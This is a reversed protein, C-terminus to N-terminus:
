EGMHLVVGNGASVNHNKAWGANVELVYQVPARPSFTQPFSEPALNETIEAITGGSAIWIIDIPFQMDKMWFSPILPKEYVFLMGANEALSERHSLGREQAERTRAVELQLEFGQIVLTSSEKSEKQLAAPDATSGREASERHAFLFGGLVALGVVILLVFKGM